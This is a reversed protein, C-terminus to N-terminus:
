DVTELVKVTVKGDHLLGGIHTPLLYEAKLLNSPVTNEFFDDFDRELVNYTYPEKISEIKATAFVL